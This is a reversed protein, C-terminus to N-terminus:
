IANDQFTCVRDVRFKLHSKRDLISKTPPGFNNGFLLEVHRVATMKFKEVFRLLEAAPQFLNVINPGPRGRSDSIQPDFGVTLIQMAFQPWVTVSLPITVISLRYSNLLATDLPVVASGM